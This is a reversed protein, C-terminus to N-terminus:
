TFVELSDGVQVSPYHQSDGTRIGCLEEKALVFHAESNNQEMNYRSSLQAM